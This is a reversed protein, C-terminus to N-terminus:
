CQVFDLPIKMTASPNMNFNEDLHKKKRVSM